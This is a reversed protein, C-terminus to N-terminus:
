LKQRKELTGVKAYQVRLARHDRCVATCNENWDYSNAQKWNIKMMLLHKVYYKVTSARAVSSARVLETTFWGNTCSKLKKRWTCKVHDEAKDVQQLDNSVNKPIQINLIQYTQLTFLNHFLSAWFTSRLSLFQTATISPSLGQKLALSNLSM